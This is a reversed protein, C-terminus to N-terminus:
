NITVRNKLFIYVECLMRLTMYMYNVTCITKKKSYNIESGCKLSNVVIIYVNETM